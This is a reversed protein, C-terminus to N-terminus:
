VDSVRKLVSIKQKHLIYEQGGSRNWEIDVHYYREDIDTDSKTLSFRPIGTAGSTTVDAEKTLVADDNSDDINKKMRLTVTDATIDPHAGNFTIQGSFAKTTGRYFDKIMMGM